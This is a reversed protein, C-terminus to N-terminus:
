IVMFINLQLMSYGRYYLATEDTEDEFFHELFCPFIAMGMGTGTGAPLAVAKEVAALMLDVVEAEKATGELFEQPAKHQKGFAPSSLATWVELPM